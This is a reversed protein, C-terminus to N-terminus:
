KKARKFLSAVGLVLEKGAAATKQVEPDALIDRVKSSFRLADDISWASASTTSFLDGQSIDYKAIMERARKFAERAEEAEPNFLSLAVLKRVTDVRDAPM